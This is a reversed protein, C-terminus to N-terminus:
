TAAAYAVLLLRAECTRSRLLQRQRGEGAAYYALCQKMFRYKPDRAEHLLRLYHLVEPTRSCKAMYVTLVHDAKHPYKKRAWDWHVVGQQIVVRLAEQCTHLPAEALLYISHRILWVVLSGFQQLVMM